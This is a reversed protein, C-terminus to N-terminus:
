LFMFPHEQLKSVNQFEIKKVSDNFVHVCMSVRTEM